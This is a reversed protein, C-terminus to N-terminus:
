AGERISTKVIRLARSRRSTALHRGDAKRQLHCAEVGGRSRLFLAKEIGMGPTQFLDRDREAAGARCLRLDDNRPAQRWAPDLYAPALDDRALGHATYRDPELKDQVPVRVHDLARFPDVGHECTGPSCLCRADITLRISCPFRGYILFSGPLIM